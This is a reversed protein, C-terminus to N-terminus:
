GPRLDQVHEFRDLVALDLPVIVEDTACVKGAAVEIGILHAKGVAIREKRRSPERELDASGVLTLALNETKTGVWRPLRYLCTEQLKPVNQLGLGSSRSGTRQAFCGAIM